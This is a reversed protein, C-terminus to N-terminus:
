YYVSILEEVYGEVNQILLDGQLINSKTLKFFENIETNSSLNIEGFPKQLNFFDEFTIKNKNKKFLDYSKYLRYNFNGFNYIIDDVFMDIVFNTKNMTRDSLANPHLLYKKYYSKNSEFEPDHLMNEFLLKLDDVLTPHLQLFEDKQAETLEKNKIGSKSRSKKPSSSM